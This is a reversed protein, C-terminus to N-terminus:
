AGQPALWREVVHALVEISFPKLLCEVAGMAMAAVAKEEWATIVVVPVNRTAPDLHLAHLMYEGVTGFVGEDGPQVMDLLILGPPDAHASALAAPGFGSRVTHGMRGLVKGYLVQTPRDDDIVLVTAM